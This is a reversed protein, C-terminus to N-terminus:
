KVGPLASSPFGADYFDFRAFSNRRSTIRNCYCRGVTGDDLYENNTALVHNFDYQHVIHYWSSCPHDGSSYTGSTRAIKNFRSIIATDERESTESRQPSHVYAPCGSCTLQVDE